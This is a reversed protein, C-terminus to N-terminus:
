PDTLDSQAMLEMGGILSTLPTRLEHSINALFQAKTENAREAEDRAVVSTMLEENLATLGTAIADLPGSGHVPPPSNFDLNAMSIISETIEKLQEAKKPDDLSM